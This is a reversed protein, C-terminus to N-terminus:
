KRLTRALILQRHKNRDRKSLQLGPKSRNKDRLKLVQLESDIEKSSIKEGKKKNLKRRLSGPNKIASKIWNKEEILNEEFNEELIKKKNLNSTLDKLQGIQNKFQNHFDDKPSDKGTPYLQQTMNNWKSFSLISSNGSYHGGNGWTSQNERMNNIRTRIGKVGRKSTNYVNYDIFYELSLENRFFKEIHSVTKIDDDSFGLSVKAGIKKGFNDVKKTFEKLAKEKGVEPNSVDGLGFKNKCYDSSVGYYDCNDLYDKILKTQSLKGRAIRDYSDYDVKFLYAFKLCHSYLSHKEDETLVNDIIYEIAMRISEPEHGRATIIAFITGKSLYEIFSDWSPGFENNKIALKVDNLFAMKGNPGNDRFECFTQTADLNRYRWNSDNRILAFKSTSVDIPLWEGDVLNDMHIVTPMHLINDDWDFCCYSLEMDTNAENVFNRFKKIM